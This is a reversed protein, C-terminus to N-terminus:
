GLTVQCRIIAFIGDDDTYGYLSKVVSRHPREREPADKRSTKEIDTASDTLATTHNLLIVGPPLSTLTTPLFM